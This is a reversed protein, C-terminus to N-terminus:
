KCLSLKLFSVTIGIDGLQQQFFLMGEQQSLFFNLTLLLDIEASLDGIPKQLRVDQLFSLFSSIGSISQFEELLQHQHLSQYANLHSLYTDGMYVNKTRFPFYEMTPIVSIQFFNNYALSLHYKYINQFAVSLYRFM